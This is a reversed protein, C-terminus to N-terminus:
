ENPRSYNFTRFSYRHTFRKWRLSVPANISVLLFFPRRVLRDLVDEDWIDTTVWHEQWRKTVFDLLSDVTSFSFGRRDESVNSQGLHPLQAESANNQVLSTAVTRSLHVEVFAHHETM